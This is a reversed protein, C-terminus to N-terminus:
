PALRCIEWLDNEARQWAFRDHLRNERGQWFEFYSPQLVFGGWHPPRPIERDRFALDRSVWLSDLEARSQIIESQPSAWAGVQSDRPRLAFYEDSDVAPLKVVSGEIRVQRELEKWFFLLSAFPNKAIEKSKRSEYNTYFQFGNEDFAKLLVMRCSPHGGEGVTSLAMATPEQVESNIAQEMWLGFQRFPDQDLDQKRMSGKM